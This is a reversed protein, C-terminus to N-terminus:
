RKVLRERKLVALEIASTHTTNFAAISVHAYYPTREEIFQDLGYVHRKGYIQRLAKREWEKVTSPFVGAAAGIEYLSQERWYRRRLTEAQATPLEKMARDLATQLQELWIEREKEEMRDVPDAQLDGLTDGDPDEGLPEDLSKCTDLPDRKNTRYGGAESFANKLHYALWTTFKYGSSEQYSEVANLLAFYGSQILDEIEVGCMGGTLVYRRSAMVSIFARVQEWLDVILEREGAQIRIVLEENTM